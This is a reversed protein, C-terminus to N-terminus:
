ADWAVQLTDLGYIGQVTGFGADGTLRLGPMRPALHLLAEELEARALNAGVCFHIGAGFTMLRAGARDAGIDFAAPGPAERNGRPDGGHLLTDAPFTVDRYDVDATQVRATFPTVPEQRLVEEVAQSALEPQAALLAWQDPHQAFLRAAHALQAHTTDVGGALVDLVLNRLERDDLRDGEAEAAILV